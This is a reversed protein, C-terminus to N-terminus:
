MLVSPFPTTDSRGRWNPLISSNSLCLCPKSTSCSVINTFVNVPIKFGQAELKDFVINPNSYFGGNCNYVSYAKCKIQHRKMNDLRNSHHDVSGCQYTQTYATLNSIYSLHHDFQNVHMTDEYQCWSKYVTLSVSDDRLHYVNVNTKLCHEFYIM